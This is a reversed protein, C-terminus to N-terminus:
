RTPFTRTPPTFTTTYRVSKTIRFDSMSGTFIQLGGSDAAGIAYYSPSGFSQSSTANGASVGNVWIDFRNSSNRTVAIHIWTGTSLSTTVELTDGSGYPNISISTLSKITLVLSGSGAGSLTWFNPTGPLYVWSEITFPETGNIYNRGNNKMLLLDGTGDFYMSGPSFKYFSNNAKADAITEFNNKNSYDIIAADTFNYLLVTNAENRPPTTPVTITSVTPSYANNGLVFKLGSIIGNTWNSSVDQGVRFL